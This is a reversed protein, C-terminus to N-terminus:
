AKLQITIKRNPEEGMSETSVQPHDRLEIHIIRRENAPMPELVQRRGSQIAQDALRRAMLKLQRERRSRYGQVDVMVPVWDGLERAVILNTIYQFANLTESRRGILINLDKGQIEIYLASPQQPDDSYRYSTTVEARVRMRELLDHVVTNAVKVARQDIEGVTKEIQIPKDQDVSEEIPKEDPDFGFVLRVRSQRGGLGFLGKNGSDLVEVKVASRPLGLQDLGREIAEDVTPAIVELTSKELSM